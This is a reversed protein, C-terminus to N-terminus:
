PEDHHGSPGPPLEVTDLIAAFSRPGTKTYMKYLRKDGRLSSMAHPCYLEFRQKQMVVFSVVAEPTTKRAWCAMEEHFSSM